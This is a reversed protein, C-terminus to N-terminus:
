EDEEPEPAAPMAQPYLIWDGDSDESASHYTWPLAADPKPTPRGADDDEDYGLSYLVYGSDTLRYRMPLGDIPDLPLAPLYTPLLEQLTPPYAGHEARYRALAIMTIAADRRADAQDATTAFKGLAPVMMTIFPYRWEGLPGSRIAELEIEMANASDGREWPRQAASAEFQDILGNYKGAVQKRSAAFLVMGLGSAGGSGFTYGVANSFVRAGELTMHGDGHGDDSYSRQLMDDFFQRELVLSIEYRTLGEAPAPGSRGITLFGEQLEALEDSSFLDPYNALLQALRMEALSEIAIQVLQGIITESARAHQAVGLMAELDDVARAGDGEEAAIFADVSLAQAFQRMKGLESLLIGIMMPNESPEEAEYPYGDAEAQAQAIEPDEVDSIPRGMVPRGAAERVRALIPEMEEMYALTADWQPWGPATTWNMMVDEPMVVRTADLIAEKYLPWARQDEPVQEFRANFEATYNRSITPKDFMRLTLWGLLLGVVLLPTGLFLLCGLRRKKRRAANWEAADLQEDM